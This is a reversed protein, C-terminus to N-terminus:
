AKGSVHYRSRLFLRGTQGFEVENAYQRDCLAEINTPCYPDYNCMCEAQCRAEVHLGCYPPDIEMPCRWLWTKPAYRAGRVFCRLAQHVDCYSMCPQESNLQHLRRRDHNHLHLPSHEHSCKVILTCIARVIQPVNGFDVDSLRTSDCRHHTPFDCHQDIDLPQRCFFGPDMEPSTDVQNLMCHKHDAATPTDAHIHAAQVEYGHLAITVKFRSWSGGGIELMDLRTHSDNRSPRVKGLYFQALNRRGQYCMDSHV